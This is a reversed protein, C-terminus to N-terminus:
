LQNKKCTFKNYLHTFYSVYRLQECLNEGEGVTNLAADLTTERQQNFQALLQEAGEVTDAIESSQLENQLEELWCTL